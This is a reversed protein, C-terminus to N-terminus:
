RLLRQLARKTSLPFDKELMWQAYGKNQLVPQGEHKGFTFVVEGADNMALKGAPDVIITSHAFVPNEDTGRTLQHSFVQWTLDVDYGAAHLKDPDPESGTYYAFADGLTRPRHSAYVKYADYARLGAQPWALGHREFEAALFQIDFGVNYGVVVDCASFIRFLSECHHEFPREFCVDDDSIGHIATAEAPIPIGPNFRLAKTDTIEGPTAACFALEVIRDTAPDLGTTEVDFTIINM